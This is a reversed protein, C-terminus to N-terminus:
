RHLNMMQGYKSACSDGRSLSARSSICSHSTRIATFSRIGGYDHADNDRIYIATDSRGGM